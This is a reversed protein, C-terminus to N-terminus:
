IFTGGKHGGIVKNVERLARDGFLTVNPTLGEVYSHSFLPRQM